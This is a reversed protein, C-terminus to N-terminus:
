FIPSVLSHFHLRHIHERLGGVNLCYRQYLQFLKTDIPKSTKIQFNILTKHERPSLPKPPNKYPPRVKVFFYRICSLCTLKAYKYKCPLHIKAEEQNKVYVTVKSIKNVIM